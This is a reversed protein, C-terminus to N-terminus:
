QEGAEEEAAPVGQPAAPAAAGSEHLLRVLPRNGEIFEGARTWTEPNNEELAGGGGGAAVSRAAAPLEPFRELDDAFLPFEARLCVLQALAAARGDLASMQEGLVRREALRYEIVFANLLVKVRRPSTVHTPVLAALVEQLEEREHLAKWLGDKAKVLNVAFEGMDTWRLPPLSLQYQFIKDVYAGASSFYPHVEDAPTEQRAKRRLAQELAQRDAAVIFVCNEIDLFVRMTELTAVVEDAACRDLEDIFVVLQEEANSLDRFAREFEDDESLPAKKRTATVGGLLGSVVVGILAAVLTAVGSLRTFMVVFSAGFTENQAEPRAWALLLSLLGMLLLAVILAVAVFKVIQKLSKEGLEQSVEELSLKDVQEPDKDLDRAVQRLFSRRLSTDRHKFADFYVFRRKKDVTGLQERLLKSIGSKGSGWPAFLAINARGQRTLVLHALEGVVDEHRFRDDTLKEIARDDIFEDSTTTEEAGAGQDCKQPLEYDTPDVSAPSPGAISDDEGADVPAPLSPKDKQASMM